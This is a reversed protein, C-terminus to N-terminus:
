LSIDWQVITHDNGVSLLTQPSAWTLGSVGASHAFQFQTKTTVQQLNWVIISEDLSGSALRQGDPSWALCTVIPKILLNM